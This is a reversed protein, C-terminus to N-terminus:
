LEDRAERERLLDRLRAAEEYREEEVAAQLQRRLESVEALGHGPPHCRPVKGEHREARHIRHLLPLLGTRFVTYDHPCGLRGRSRFEMYRIGCEPCKLAAFEEMQQGVQEGLFTQLIAPLNLEQAKILNQAEACPRCLHVERKKNQVTDTLHITAPSDCLQCKV